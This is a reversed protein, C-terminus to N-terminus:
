MWDVLLPCGCCSTATCADAAAAGRRATLPCATRAKPAARRRRVPAAIARVPAPPPLLPVDPLIIVSADFPAM